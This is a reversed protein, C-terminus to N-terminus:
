DEKKCKKRIVELVDIEPLPYHRNDYDKILLVLLSLEDDELPNPEADFLSMMRMNAWNYDEETKLTTWSM